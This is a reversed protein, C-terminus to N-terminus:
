TAPGNPEVVTKMEKAGVKGPSAIACLFMEVHAQISFPIGKLQADAENLLYCAFLLYYGIVLVLLLGGCVALYVVYTQALSCAYVYLFLALILGMLGFTLLMITVVTYYNGVAGQSKVNRPPSASRQVGCSRCARRYGRLISKWRYRPDLVSKIIEVVTRM